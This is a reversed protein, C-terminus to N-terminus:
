QMIGPSPVCYSSLLYKHFLCMSTDTPDEQKVEPGPPTLILGQPDPSAGSCPGEAGELEQLGEGALDRDGPHPDAQSSPVPSFYDLADEDTFHVLSVRGRRGCLLQTLHCSLGPCPHCRHTNFSSFEKGPSLSNLSSTLAELKAPWVTSRWRGPVLGWPSPIQNTSSFPPSLAVPPPCLSQQPSPNRFM